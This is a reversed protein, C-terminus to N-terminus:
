VNRIVETTRISIIFEENVSRQKGRRFQKIKANVTNNSQILDLDGIAERHGVGFSAVFNGNSFIEVFLHQSQM